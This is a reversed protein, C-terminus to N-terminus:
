KYVKSWNVKDQNYAKRAKYPTPYIDSHYLRMPKDDPIVSKELYYGIDDLSYIIDIVLVVSGSRHFRINTIEMEDM